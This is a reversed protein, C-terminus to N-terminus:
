VDYRISTHTACSPDGLKRSFGLLLLESAKPVSEQLTGFVGPKGFVILPLRKSPLGAYM